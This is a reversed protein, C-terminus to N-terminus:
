SSKKEVKEYIAAVVQDDWDSPLHKKNRKKRKLIGDVKCAESDRIEGFTKPLRLCKAYKIKRITRSM